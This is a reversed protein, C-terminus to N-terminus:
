TSIRELIEAREEIVARIIAADKDSGTVDPHYRKILEHYEKKLITIDSCAEDSFFRHKQIAETSEKAHGAKGEAKKKANDKHKRAPNDYLKEYFGSRQTEPAESFSMEEITGDNWKVFDLDLYTDKTAIFAIDRFYFVKFCSDTEALCSFLKEMDYLMSLLFCAFTHKSEYIMKAYAIAKMREAKILATLEEEIENKMANLDTIRSLYSKDAGGSKIFLAENIESLKELRKISRYLPGAPRRTRVYVEKLLSLDDYLLAACLFYDYSLDAMKGVNRPRAEYFSRGNILFNSLIDKDKLMIAYHLADFGVSDTKQLDTESLERGSLLKDYVKVMQENKYRSFFADISAKEHFRLDKQTSSLLENVYSADDVYTSILILIMVERGSLREKGKLYSYIPLISSTFTFITVDSLDDIYDLYFKEDPKKLAEYLKEPLEEKMSDVYSHYRGMDCHRYLDEAQYVATMSPFSGEASLEDLLTKYLPLLVGYSRFSRGISDLIFGEADAYRQKDVSSHSAMERQLARLLEVLERGTTDNPAVTRGFIRIDSRQNLLHVTDLSNEQYVYFSCLGDLDVRNEPAWDTHTPHFYIARDTIITGNGEMSFSSSYSSSYAYVLMKEDKPINYTLYYSAKNSFRDLDCRLSKFREKEKLLMPTYKSMRLIVESFIILPELM